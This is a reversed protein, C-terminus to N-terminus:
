VTALVVTEPFGHILLPDVPPAVSATTGVWEWVSVSGPCMWTSCYLPPAEPAPPPIDDEPTETPFVGLEALVADATVPIEILAAPTLAVFALKGGYIPM